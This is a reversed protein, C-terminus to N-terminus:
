ALTMGGAILVGLCTDIAWSMSGGAIKVTDECGVFVDVEALELRSTGFRAGPKATKRAVLLDWEAGGGGGEGVTAAVTGISRYSARAYLYPRM